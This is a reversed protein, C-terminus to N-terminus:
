SMSRWCPWVEKGPCLFMRNLQCSSQDAEPFVRMLADGVAEAQKRDTIVHDFGFVIRYRPNWPEVTAKASFYLFLPDLKKDYARDLADLPDLVDYGRLKMDDDDDFDVFFLQQGTWDDLKTGGVCIGPLLTYGGRIGRELCEIDICVRANPQSLRWRIRSMEKQDPKPKDKYSVRDALLEFRVDAIGM